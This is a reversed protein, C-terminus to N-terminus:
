LFITKGGSKLLPKDGALKTPRFDRFFNSRLSGWHDPGTSLCTDTITSGAEPKGLVSYSYPLLFFRLSLGVVRTIPIPSYPFPSEKEHLPSRTLPRQRYLYPTERWLIPSVTVLAQRPASSQQM